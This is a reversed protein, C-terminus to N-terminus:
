DDGTKAKKGGGDDTAKKGDGDDPKDEEDPVAGARVTKADVAAKDAVPDDDGDPFAIVNEGAMMQHVVSGEGEHHETDPYLYITCYKYCGVEGGKYVTIITKEVSTSRGKGFAEAGKYIYVRAGTVYQVQSCADCNKPSKVYVTSGDNAFVRGRMRAYTTSGSYAHEDGTSINHIVSKDLAKVRADGTAYVQGGFAEIFVGDGVHAVSGELTVVWINTGVAEELTGGDEVLLRLQKGQLPDGSPRSVKVHAGSEITYVKDPDPDNLTVVAGEKLHVIDAAAVKFPNVHQRNSHFGIVAAVIAAAALLVMFLAPRDNESPQTM